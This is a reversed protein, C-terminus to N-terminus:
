LPSFMCSWLMRKEVSCALASFNTYTPNARTFCYKYIHSRVTRYNGTLTTETLIEMGQVSAKRRYFWYGKSEMQQGVLLGYFNKFVRWFVRQKNVFLFWQQPSVFSSM